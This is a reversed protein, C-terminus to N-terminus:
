AKSKKDQTRGKPIKYTQLQKLDSNGCSHATAYDNQVVAKDQLTEM